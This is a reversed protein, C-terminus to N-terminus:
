PMQWMLQIELDTRLTLDALWIGDQISGSPNSSVVHAGGPLRIRLALPINITGAQKQVRLQYVWTNAGATQITEPVLAFDFSTQRIEARPIVMLAGYAQVGAPNEPIIGDNDLVDVRAPVDYGTVM